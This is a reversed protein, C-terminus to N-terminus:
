GLVKVDCFYPYMVSASHKEKVVIQFYYTHSQYLINDPRFRLTNTMNDFVLFPPYKEIEDTPGIYVEPEDNGEKDVLRPLRYELVDGVNLQFKTEPDTEFDPCNNNLVDVYLYLEYLETGACSRLITRQKKVAEESDTQIYFTGGDDLPDFRGLGGEAATGNQFLWTAEAMRDLVSAADSRLAVSYAQENGGRYYSMGYTLNVSETACM